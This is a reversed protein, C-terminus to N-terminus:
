QLFSLCGIEEPLDGTLNFGTLDLIVVYGQTNCRVGDWTCPDSAPNQVDWNNPLWSSGNTSTYVATLAERESVCQALVLAVVALFVLVLGM